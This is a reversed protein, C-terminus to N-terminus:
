VDKETNVYQWKYGGSYPIDGRAAKCISSKHMGTRKAALTASGFIKIFNGEMDYQAVAKYHTRQKIGEEYGITLLMNFYFDYLAEQKPTSVREILGRESMENKVRKIAESFEM